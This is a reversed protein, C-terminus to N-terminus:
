VKVGQERIREVVDEPVRWLGQAGRCPIPETLAQVDSLVWGYRGPTFDGFARERPGALYQATPTPFERLLPGDTWVFHETPVIRILEAVAVIAGLPLFKPYRYHPGIAERMLRGVERDRGSSVVEGSESLYGEMLTELGYWPFLKTAHIALLGRYPTSWSRTEVRKAGVAVLSAWPQHLSLGRLETM